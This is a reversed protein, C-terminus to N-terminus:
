SKNAGVACTFVAIVKVLVLLCLCHHTLTLSTNYMLIIPEPTLTLPVLM